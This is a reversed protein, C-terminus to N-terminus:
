QHPGYATPLGLPVRTVWCFSGVEADPYDLVDKSLKTIDITAMMPFRLDLEVERSEREQRPAHEHEGSWWGSGRRHCGGASLSGKLSADLRFSCAKIFAAIAATAQM